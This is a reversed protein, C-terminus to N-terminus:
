TVQVAYADFLARRFLGSLPFNRAQQKDLIDLVRRRDEYSVMELGMSFVLPMIVGNLLGDRNM